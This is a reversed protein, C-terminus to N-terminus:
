NQPFIITSIPMVAVSRYFDTGAFHNPSSIVINKLQHGQISTSVLDDLTAQPDELEIKDDVASAMDQTTITELASTFSTGNVSTFLLSDFENSQIDLNIQTQLAPLINSEFSPELTLTENEALELLILDSNTISITQGQLITSIGQEIIAKTSAAILKFKKITPTGVKQIENRLTTLIEDLSGSTNIITNPNSATTILGKKKLENDFLVAEANTFHSVTTAKKVLPHDELKLGSNLIAQLESPKPLFSKLKVQGEKLPRTAGNVDITSNSKSEGYIYLLDNTALTEIVSSPISLIAVGGFDTEASINLKGKLLSALQVIANRIIGDKLTVKLPIISKSASPPTVEPVTIVSGDDNSSSAGCGPLILLTAIAIAFLLIKTM